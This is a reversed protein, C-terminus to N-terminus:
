HATHSAAALTQTPENKKKLCFVAYSIAVHSSNLVHARGIEEAIDTVGDTTDDCDGFFRAMTITTGELEEDTVAAISEASEGGGGADPGDDGESGSLGCGALVLSAAAVMAAM